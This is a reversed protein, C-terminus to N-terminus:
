QCLCITTSATFAPFPKECYIDSTVCPRRLHVSPQQPVSFRVCRASQPRLTDAGDDACLCLLQNRFSNESIHHQDFAREAAHDLRLM